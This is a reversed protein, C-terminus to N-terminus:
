KKNLKWWLFLMFAGFVLFTAIMMIISLVIADLIMSSYSIILNVFYIGCGIAATILAYIAILFVLILFILGILGGVAVGASYGPKPCCCQRRSM